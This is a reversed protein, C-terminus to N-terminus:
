IVRTKALSHSSIESLASVSIVVEGNRVLKRPHPSRTPQDGVLRAPTRINTLQLFSGWADATDIKTDICPSCIFHQVTAAGKQRAAERRINRSVGGGPSSGTSEPIPIDKPEWPGPSDYLSMSYSSLIDSSTPTSDYHSFKYDFYQWHYSFPEGYRLFLTVMNNHLRINMDSLESGTYDYSLTTTGCEWCM